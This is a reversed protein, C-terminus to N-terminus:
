FKSMKCLEFKIVMSYCSGMESEEWDGSVVKTSEIERLNAAKNGYKSKDIKIFFMSNCFNKESNLLKEWTMLLRYYNFGPILETATRDYHKCKNLKRWGKRM